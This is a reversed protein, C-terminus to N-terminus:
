RSASSKCRQSEMAWPANGGKEELYPARWHPDCLLASLRIQLNNKYWNKCVITEHRWLDMWLLVLFLWCVGGGHHHLREGRWHCPNFSVVGGLPRAAKRINKGLGSDFSNTQNLLYIYFDIYKILRINLKILARGGAVIIALVADMM